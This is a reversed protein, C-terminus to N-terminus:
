HSINKKKFVRILTLSMIKFDLLFSLNEVYYLDLNIKEMLNIEDRGNIQAWGTLGPVIKDIKHLQRYNILDHQNFLAPRPGVFSMHGLLISWIQPLEDLSSRRLVSGFSTLYNEPTKLLHTAKQPTKIDMTRIKPMLFKDSNKGVRVSWYLFSGESSLKVVLFLTFIVPILIILLLISLVIDFLRKIFLYKM